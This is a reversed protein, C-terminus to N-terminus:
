VPKSRRGVGARPHRPRRVRRAGHHGAATVPEADGVTGM